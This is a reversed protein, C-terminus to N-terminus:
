DPSAILSTIDLQSVPTTPRHAEPPSSALDVLATAADYEVASISKSRMNLNETKPLNSFLRCWHELHESYASGEVIGKEKMEAKMSKYADLMEFTIKPVFIDGSKGFTSQYLRERLDSCMRNLKSAFANLRRAERPTTDNGDLGKIVRGVFTENFANLIISSKPVLLGHLRSEAISLQWYLEFWLEEDPLWLAVARTKMGARGYLQNRWNNIKRIHGANNWDIDSHLINRFHLEKVEGTFTDDCLLRLLSEDKQGPKATRRAGRPTLRSLTQSTSGFPKTITRRKRSFTTLPQTSSEGRPEIKLTSAPRLPKSTTVNLTGRQSSGPNAKIKKPSPSAISDILNGDRQKRKQPM